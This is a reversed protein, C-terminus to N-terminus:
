DKSRLFHFRYGKRKHNVLHNDTEHNFPLSGESLRDRHYLLDLYHLVDTKAKMTLALESYRLIASLALATGQNAIGTTRPIMGQHVYCHREHFVKDGKLLNYSNQGILSVLRRKVAEFPDGGRSLLIEISTISGLLGSAEDPRHIADSLRIASESIANFLSVSIVPKQPALVRTLARTDSSECKELLSKRDLTVLKNSAPFREHRHQLMWDGREVTLMFVTNVRSHIQDVLGSTSWTKSDMLLALTLLASLREARCRAKVLLDKTERGPLKKEGFTIRSSRKVAIFSNFEAPIAAREMVIRLFEEDNKESTQRSNLIMLSVIQKAHAKLLITTDGFLPDLLDHTEDSITLGKLPFFVWWPTLVKAEKVGGEGLPQANTKPGSM